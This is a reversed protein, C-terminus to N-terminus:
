TRFPCPAGDNSGPEVSVLGAESNVLLSEDHIVAFIRVIGLPRRAIWKETVADACSLARRTREGMAFVNEGSWGQAGLADKWTDSPAVLMVAIRGRSGIEAVAPAHTRIGDFLLDLLTARGPEM